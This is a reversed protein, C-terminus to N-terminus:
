PKVEYLYLKCPLAGNWLRTVIKAPRLGFASEFDDSSSLVAAHHGPLTRLSAGIAHYVSKLGKKGGADLREGYPVNMVLQGPPTMAKLDRADAEGVRM